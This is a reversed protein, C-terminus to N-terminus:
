LSRLVDQVTKMECKGNYHERFYRMVSPISKDPLSIIIKKIEDESMMSPLFKEVIAKQEMIEAHKTINGVKKYNEAEEDLEKVTKQLIRTMEADDVNGGSTRLSITAQLHKNILISFIARQNAKKDRMAQINAKKIEDIIM